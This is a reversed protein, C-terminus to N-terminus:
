KVKIVATSSVLIPGQPLVPLVWVASMDKKRSFADQVWLHHEYSRVTSVNCAVGTESVYIESGLAGCYM